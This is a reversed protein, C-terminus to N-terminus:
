ESDGKRSQEIIKIIKQQEEIPLEKRMKRCFYSESIGLLEAAQFQKLGNRIMVVRINLNNM